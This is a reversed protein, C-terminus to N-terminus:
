QNNLQNIQKAKRYQWFKWGRRISLPHNDSPARIFGYETTQLLLSFFRLNM